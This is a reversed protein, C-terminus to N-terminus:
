FAKRMMERGTNECPECKGQPDGFCARCVGPPLFCGYYVIRTIDDRHQKAPQMKEPWHKEKRLFYNMAGCNPCEGSRSYWGYDCWDCKWAQM